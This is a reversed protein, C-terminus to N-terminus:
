ALVLIESSNLPIILQASENHSDVIVYGQWLDSYKGFRHNVQVMRLKEPYSNSM